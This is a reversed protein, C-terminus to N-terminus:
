SVSFEAAVVVTVPLTCFICLAICVEGFICSGRVFQMWSVLPPFTAACVTNLHEPTKNWKSVWTYSREDRCYKMILPQCVSPVKDESIQGVKLVASFWEVIKATTHFRTDLDSIINDMATFIVRNQFMTTASDQAKEEQSIEDHFTKMNRTAATNRALNLHLMWKRLLWHQRLCSLSGDM